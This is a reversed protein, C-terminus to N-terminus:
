ARVSIFRSAAQLYAQSLSHERLVSTSHDSSLVDAETVSVKACHQVRLDELSALVPLCDQDGGTFYVM